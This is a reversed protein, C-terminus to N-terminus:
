NSYVLSFLSLIYLLFKFFVKIMSICLYAATHFILPLAFMKFKIIEFLALLIIHFTNIALLSITAFKSINIQRISRTLLFYIAMKVGDFIHFVPM